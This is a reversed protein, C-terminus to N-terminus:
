MSLGHDQERNQEITQKREALWVEVKLNKELDQRLGQLVREQRPKPMANFGDVLAQLPQPTAEWQEDGDRFGRSRGARKVALSKFARAVQERDAQAQRSVAQRYAEEERRRSEMFADSEREREQREKEQRLAELAAVRDRAPRQEERIRVEAMTRESQVRQEAEVVRPSVELWRQHAAERAEAFQDLEPSNWWGGDHLRSRYAHQLRWAGEQQEALTQAKAAEERQGSLREAAKRAEIVAPDAEVLRGLDPPRIREIEAALEASSMAEIRERAERQRREAAEANARKRAAERAAKAQQQAALLAGSLVQVAGNADSLAQRQQEVQQALARRQRTSPAEIRRRHSPRGTRREFGTAAPGLHRTPQREIGQESLTRHDVRATLGARLLHSNQVAAFRERWYTVWQSGSAKDDLERTKETFGDTGLRRTSLLIHAHHNRQDGGKSPAHIAIDAACGHREVIERAFAHAMNQRETASLEAPLAIEFERAVTSNKRREAQEAANWLAGRDAAWSPAGKPLIIAASEVGRKRAYDHVEGTREDAIRVACRYAAAATASRGASRSITKVSLHYIAM